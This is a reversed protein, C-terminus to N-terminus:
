IFVASRILLKKELDRKSLSTDIYDEHKHKINKEAEKIIKTM